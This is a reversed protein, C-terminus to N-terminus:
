PGGFLPSIERQYRFFLFLGIIAPGLIRWTSAENLPATLGGQLGLSHILLNTGAIILMSVFAYLKPIATERKYLNRLEMEHDMYDAIQKCAPGLFGGEEGARMLSVVLPTFTEPYRQLVGSMPMGADVARAMENVIGRMRLDRSQKALTDLSTVMPVGAEIMTGLQRFFFALEKLQQGM